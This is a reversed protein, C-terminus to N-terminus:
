MIMMSLCVVLTTTIGIFAASNDSRTPQATHIDSETSSTTVAPVELSLITPSISSAYADVCVCSLWFEITGSETELPEVHLLSVAQLYGADIVRSPGTSNHYVVQVRTNNYVNQLRMQVGVPTSGAVNCTVVAPRNFQLQVDGNSSEQFMANYIDPQATTNLQYCFHGPGCKLDSLCWTDNLCIEGAEHLRHPITFSKPTIEDVENIVQIYEYIVQSGDCNPHVYMGGDEDNLLVQEPLQARTADGVLYRSLEGFLGLYFLIENDGSFGYTDHYEGVHQTVWGGSSKRYLRSEYDAFVFATGASNVALFEGEIDSDAIKTSEITKKNAWDITSVFLSSNIKEFATSLDKSFAAPQTVLQSWSTYDKSTSSRSYFWTEGDTVLILRSGTKDFSLSSLSTQNFPLPTSTFVSWGQAQRIYFTITDNKIVVIWQGDGSISSSSAGTTINQIILDNTVSFVVLTNNLDTGCLLSNDDTITYKLLTVNLSKASALCFLALLSLLITRM